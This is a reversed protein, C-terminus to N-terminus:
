EGMTLAMLALSGTMSQPLRSVLYRIRPNFVALMPCARKGSTQYTSTTSLDMPQVIRTSRESTPRPLTRCIMGCQSPEQDAGPNSASSRMSTRFEIMANELKSQVNSGPPLRAALTFLKELQTGDVAFDDSRRVARRPAQAYIVYSCTVTM